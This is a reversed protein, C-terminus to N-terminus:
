LACLGRCGIIVGSLDRVAEGPSRLDTREPSAQMVLASVIYFVGEKMPPLDIAADIVTSLTTIGDTPDLQGRVTNCRPANKGGFNTDPLLTIIRDGEMINIIHPTCNVLM